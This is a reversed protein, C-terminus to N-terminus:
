SAGYANLTATQDTFISINSITTASPGTVTVNMTRTLTCNNPAPLGNDWTYTITHSGVGAAQPNFVGIGRDDTYDDGASGTPAPDVGNTVGPGSDVGTGQVVLM